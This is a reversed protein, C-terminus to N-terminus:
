MVAMAVLIVIGLLDLWVAVAILTNGNWAEGTEPTKARVTKM